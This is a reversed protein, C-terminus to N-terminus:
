MSRPDSNFRHWPCRSKSLRNQSAPGREGFQSFLCRLRSLGWCYGDQGVRSGEAQHPRTRRTHQAVPHYFNLQQYGSIDRHMSRPELGWMGPLPHRTTATHRGGQVQSHLSRKRRRLGQSLFLYRLLAGSGYFSVTCSKSHVNEKM